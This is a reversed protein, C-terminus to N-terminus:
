HRRLFTIKVKPYNLNKNINCQSKLSPLKLNQSLTEITILRRGPLEIQSLILRVQLSITLQLQM